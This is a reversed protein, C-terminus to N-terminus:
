GQDPFFIPWSTTYVDRLQVWAGRNYTEYNKKVTNQWFNTGIDSHWNPMWPWLAADFPLGIKFNFRLGM